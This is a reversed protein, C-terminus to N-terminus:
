GGVTGLMARSPPKWRGGRLPSPIGVPRRACGGGPGGGSRRRRRDGHQHYQYKSVDISTPKINLSQRHQHRHYKLINVDIHCMLISGINEGIYRYKPRYIMPMDPKSVQYKRFSKIISPM